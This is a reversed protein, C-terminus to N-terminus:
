MNKRILTLGERIANMTIKPAEKGPKWSLNDQLFGAHFILGEDDEGDIHTHQLLEDYHDEATFRQYDDAHLQEQLRLQGHLWVIHPM